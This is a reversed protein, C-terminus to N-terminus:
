AIPYIDWYSHRAVFGSDLSILVSGKELERVTGLQNGFMNVCDVRMGVQILSKHAIATEYHWPDSTDTEGLSNIFDSSGFNNIDLNIASIMDDSLKKHM